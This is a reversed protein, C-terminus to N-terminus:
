GGVFVGAAPASAGPAGIVPAPGFQVPGLPTRGGLIVQGTLICMGDKVQIMGGGHAMYCGSDQSIEFHGGFCSITIKKNKEDVVIAMSDGVIISASKDKLFVRSDFDPGTSHLCTEGAGLEATVSATRTDRGTIVVGGSTGPVNVKIGQAHGNDNSPYPFATVGLAGMMPADGIDPADNPDEGVRTTKAQVLLVNTKPDLRASGIDIFETM